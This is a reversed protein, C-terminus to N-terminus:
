HQRTRPCIEHPAFFFHIERKASAVSDSGHIVNELADGILDHNAYLNRITGPAAEKPITAGMINRLNQVADEGELVLIMVPGSTMYKQLSPYFPRETHEAYLENTKDRTLHLMKAAIIRLGVAEILTLIKGTLNSAIADPKLITLTRELAM